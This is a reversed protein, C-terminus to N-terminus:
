FSILGKQYLLGLVFLISFAIFAFIAGLRVLKIGRKLQEKRDTKYSLFRFVFGILMLPFAIVLLISTIIFLIGAVTAIFDLEFM